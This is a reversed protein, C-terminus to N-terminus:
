QTVETSFLRDYAHDLALRVAGLAVAGDGFTSPVIEPMVPVRASIHRRLPALLIDGAQSVGGGIIVLEPDLVISMAAIGRGLWDLVQDVIKRATDDGETAAAFVHEAAVADTTGALELLRDGRGSDIAARALRAFAMGGATYEFQGAGATVADPDDPGIPLYGIEGAAGHGGRHLQGNVLMGAGIGVGVQVFCVNRAHAAAGQWQEALLSLHVESDAWVPRALRRSLEDSLNLGDWGSLQPALTLVGTTPDIVGPTGIGIADVDDLTVGADGIAKAVLQDITEFLDGAQPQAPGRRTLRRAEAVVSGNLDAVLAVAKDAGVDIGVVHGSEARFRLMRGPRGPRRPQAEASSADEAVLGRRVLTDVVENVTPKSLGTSRAVDSRTLPGDDRITALVLESNMRRMLSPSATSPTSRHQETHM